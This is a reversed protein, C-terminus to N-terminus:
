VPLEMLAPAIVAQVADVHLVAVHLREGDYAPMVPADSGVIEASYRGMVVMVGPQLKPRLAAAEDSVAIVWGWVKPHAPHRELWLGSATLGAPNYPRVFVRPGYVNWARAFADAPLRADVRANTPSGVVTM